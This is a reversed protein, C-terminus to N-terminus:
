PRRSAPRRRRRVVAFLGVRARRVMDRDLFRDEREGAEGADVDQEARFHARGALHHAEVVIERQGEGLALEAGADVQRAVPVSNTETRSSSLGRTSGATLTRASRPKLTSAVPPM